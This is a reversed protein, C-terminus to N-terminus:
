FFIKENYKLSNIFISALIADINIKNCDYDCIFIHQKQM